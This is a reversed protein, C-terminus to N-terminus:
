WADTVESEHKTITEKPKITKGIKKGYKVDSDKAPVVFSRIVKANGYADYEVLTNIWLKMGKM